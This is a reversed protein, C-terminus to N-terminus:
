QSLASTTTRASALSYSVSDMGEDNASDSTFQCVQQQMFSLSFPNDSTEALPLPISDEIHNLIDEPIWDTGDAFMIHEVQYDSSVFFNSITMSDDREAFSLVLNNSKRSVRTESALIDENFLITDSSDVVSGHEYINDKGDGARFIYTDSGAGGSLSDNGTGGDLSDNGKGGNLTDNGGNGLVTDDNDWGSLTNVSDNGYVPFGMGALDSVTLTTDGFVMDFQRYSESIFYNSLTLTDSGGWARILLDNGSKEIMAQTIDAGEFVLTNVGNKYTDNVRDQGDGIRFIYADSGEGGSLSDNGTGGDLSDNGKGGNLTDNGGYGLLTDDNDWGSLSNVSDNGYVPFGMAALDSVTLTTDGFVMDFQRYSESIFYNSLTLTDSGGWARILLDNGSKELVAKAIDSGEFVLTNVSSTAKDSIRDQGDGVRFIYADSGEGGSLSDNGTGGDLSDNGKGGNLSDNGGFGLLTDDNDWGILSNVSDNGYVPFGMAALDSVTLTTDGFVMDFQRYSESIFYNSLTLTDSGGWARILLDNGSKELVAKAIDAGEFALINVSSTASDSLQDQGDGQSFLYTDSGARGDLHDNGHKGWVFDDASTGILNDNGKGGIFHTDSMRFSIDCENRYSPMYELWSYITDSLRLYNIADDCKIENLHVNLDTFDLIFGSMDSNLGFRIYAFEDAYLTQALLQSEIYSSFKTYEEDILKAANLNPDTVKGHVSVFGDGTAAELVALVRANINIGRSSTDLDTVGAWCFLINDILGSARALEPNAIYQEILIQLSNDKSMAIHLDALNGFGRIFPLERIADSVDVDGIYHSYGNDHDFWVDSITSTKGDSFIVSGTQRHANGQEDILTSNKYKTNIAAIGLSDLSHLEGEDVRANSNKDQWVQLTEWAMDQCNIVGDGNSDKDKLADFGNSAKKGDQLVTNDGFLEKGTDILGNGDLDMVLLGDDGGVWGTNEAFKNGDHDFFINKNISLTEIGDGDLDIIIPDAPARQAGDMSPGFGPPAFGPFMMGPFMAGPPFPFNGVASLPITGGNALNAMGSAFAGMSGSFYGLLESIWSSSSEGFQELADVATNMNQVSADLWLQTAELFGDKFAQAAESVTGDIASFVQESCNYVEAAIFDIADKADLISEVPGFDIIGVSTNIASEFTNFASTIDVIPLDDYTSIHAFAMSDIRGAVGFPSQVGDLIHIGASKLIYDAATTCNFDDGGNGDPILDYMPLNDTSIQIAYFIKSYQEASIEITLSQSYNRTDLYEKKDLEGEVNFYGSAKKPTFGFNRSGGKGDNLVLWTHVVGDGNVFSADNKITITKKM